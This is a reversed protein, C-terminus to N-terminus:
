FKRYIFVLFRVMCPECLFAAIHRGNREAEEFIRKVEKTCMKAVMEDLADGSLDSPYEPENQQNSILKSKRYSSSYFDIIIM